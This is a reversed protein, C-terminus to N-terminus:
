IFPIRKLIERLFGWLDLPAKHFTLHIAHINVIGQTTTIAPTSITFKLSRETQYLESIDFTANSSLWNGTQTAPSYKALIYRVGLAEADTFVSLKVPDPDFFSQASFSFKGDGVIKIDGAPTYGRVVGTDKITHTVKQQISPILANDSGLTVSQTSDAHFTELTLNKASTYFTISRSNQLYGVDDGLYITNVFTMFRQTTALERWFIDSTGSLEVSYVGEPLDPADLSVFRTSSIQNEFENGDDNMKKEYVIEGTESRVRAVAEDAGTTRNMDMVTASFTLNENKIYTQYKHYGRLSVPFTQWNGSPEYNEIRYPEYINTHYTAIESRKPLNDFFADISSFVPDRQLLVIGNKELKNDDEEEIFTNQLPRLDYGQAHIDVLGGLEIIPQGENQFEIEVDVFDFDTNPLDVNFYVPDNIITVFAEDDENYQVGLIRDDPLLRNVYPSLEDVTYNVRFNGTPAIDLVLLWAFLVIPLCIIIFKIFWRMM